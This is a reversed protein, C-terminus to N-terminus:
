LIWCKDSTKREEYIKFMADLTFISWKRQLDKLYINEHEIM